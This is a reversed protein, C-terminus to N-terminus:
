APTSTAQLGVQELRGQVAVAIQEFVAQGAPREFFVTSDWFLRTVLRKLPQWPCWRIFRSICDDRSQGRSQIARLSTLIQFTNFCDTLNEGHRSIGTKIKDRKVLSDLVNFRSWRLADDRIAMLNRKLTFLRTATPTGEVIPMNGGEVRGGLISSVKPCSIHPTQM